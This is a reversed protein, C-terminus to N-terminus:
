QLTCKLQPLADLIKTTLRETAVTEDLVGLEDRIQNTESLFVDPDTYPKMVNNDLRRLLTLRRQRSSNQYKSQLALWALKGDEPRGYKPEFQLLVSRAADTTTLRLVSFLHENASNWAKIDDINSPREDIYGTKDDSGM